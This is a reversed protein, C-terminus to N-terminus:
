AVLLENFESTPTGDDVIITVRWGESSWVKATAMAILSSSREIRVTENDKEAVIKYAM